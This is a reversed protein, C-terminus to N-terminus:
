AGPLHCACCSALLTCKILLPTACKFKSSTGFAEQEPFYGTAHYVRVMKEMYRSYERVFAGFDWASNSV